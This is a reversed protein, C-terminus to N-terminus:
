RSSAPGQPLQARRRALLFTLSAVLAVPGAVSSIALGVAEPNGYVHDTALAILVPGCGLGLLTNSFTLLSASTARLAGPVLEQLTAVAGIGAVTSAFLWLGIGVLVAREDHVCVLAAALAALVAAGASFILRGRTGGRRAAVDSLLGGGVAGAAGAVVAIVGFTVGVKSSEWQFVRSLTAPAWSYLGYDGIALLAMALYLPLLVARRDIFYRSAAAISAHDAPETRMPERVTLLLLPIVFGALGVLVLVSRWPALTGVVPWGDFMGETAAALVIGGASIGLPGGVVTGMSFLGLATGRRVPPFADAVMSVAAPVLTAEGVGLLIRGLFFSWFGPAFGCLVTALCWLCAGALILNRRCRRDAVMALPISAFVYVLTFAAGQLLSVGSDSLDLDARLPDVLAGLILRDSYSVVAALFLVAVMWWKGV